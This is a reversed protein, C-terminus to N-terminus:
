WFEQPSFDKMMRQWEIGRSQWAGRELRWRVRRDDPVDSRLREFGLLVGIRNVRTNEVENHAIANEISLGWSDGMLINLIYLSSELGYGQGQRYPLLMQGLEVTAPDQKQRTISFLGVADGAVDDMRWFRARMPWETNWGLVKLFLSDIDQVNMVPGIHVMVEPTGYLSRYLERDNEDILRARIRPTKFAWDVALGNM